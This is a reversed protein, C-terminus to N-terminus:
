ISGRWVRIRFSFPFQEMFRLSTTLSKSITEEPVPEDALDFHM